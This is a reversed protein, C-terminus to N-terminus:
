LGKNSHKIYKNINHIHRVKDTSYTRKLNNAIKSNHTNKNLNNIQM